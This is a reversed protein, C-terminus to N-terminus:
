DNNVVELVVKNGETIFKLNSGEKINFEKLIEKPIAIVKSRGHKRIKSIM